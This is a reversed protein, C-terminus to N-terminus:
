RSLRPRDVRRRRGAFESEYGHCRSRSRPLSRRPSTARSQLARPLTITFTTGHGPRFVSRNKGAHRDVINRSIALGLGLGRGHEKTTFFPEFMNALVDKPMGVGDDRVEVQVDAPIRLSEPPSRSIEAMPCPMSRREDGAGPHGARNTRSRLARAPPGAALEQHLEINKLKVPTAGPPRLPRHHRESRCARSEHFHPARLDDPEQRNRRLPPKGIEVLDLM